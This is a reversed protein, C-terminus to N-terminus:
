ILLGINKLASSSIIQVSVLHNERGFYFFFSTELHTNLGRQTQFPNVTMGAACFARYGRDLLRVGSCLAVDVHAQYWRSSSQRSQVSRLNSLLEQGKAIM